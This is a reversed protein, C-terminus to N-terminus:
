DNKRQSKAVLVITVVACVVFVFLCAGGGLVGVRLLWDEFAENASMM